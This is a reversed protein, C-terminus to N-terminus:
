ERLEPWDTDGPKSKIAATTMPGLQRLLRELSNNWALFTRSDHETFVGSETFRQNMIAIRLQLECAQEILLKQTITPNGGCHETLERRLSKVLRGKKSRGDIKKLFAHRSYPGVDTMRM